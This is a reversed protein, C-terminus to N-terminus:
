AKKFLPKEFFAQITKSQQVIIGVILLNLLPVFCVVVMWTFDGLSMYGHQEIEEKVIIRICAFGILIHIVLLILLM